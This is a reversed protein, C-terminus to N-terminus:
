RVSDSCGYLSSRFSEKKSILCSDALIVTPGGYAGVTNGVTPVTNGVTPVTNGVTPVTNGVTPDHPTNVEPTTVVNRELGCDATSHIHCMYSLRSVIRAKAKPWVKLTNGRRESATALLPLGPECKLSM